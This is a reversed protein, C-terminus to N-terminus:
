NYFYGFKVQKQWIWRYNAFKRNNNCAKVIDFYNKPKLGETDICALFVNKFEKRCLTTTDIRVLPRVEQQRRKQERYYNKRYDRTKLVIMKKKETDLNKYRKRMYANRKKRKIPDKLREKQLEYDRKKQATTRKKKKNYIKNKERQQQRQEDTLNATWKRKYERAKRLREKKKGLEQNRYYNRFYERRKNLEEFTLKKSSKEM